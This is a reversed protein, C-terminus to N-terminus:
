TKRSSFHPTARLRSLYDGVVKASLLFPQLGYYGLEAEEM